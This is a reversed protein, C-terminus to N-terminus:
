KFCRRCLSLASQHNLRDPPSRDRVVFVPCVSFYVVRFFCNVLQCHRPCPAMGTTLMRKPEVVSLSYVFAALSPLRSNIRLLRRSSRRLGCTLPSALALDGSNALWPTVVAAHDVESKIRPWEYLFLCTGVTLTAKFRPSANGSSASSVTSEGRMWQWCTPTPLAPSCWSGSLSPGWRGCAVAKTQALFGRPARSVKTRWTGSKKQNKAPTTSHRSWHWKVTETPTQQAAAEEEGRLM